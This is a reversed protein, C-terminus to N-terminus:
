VEGNLYMKRRSEPLHEIAYRLMTRPMTQYNNQLFDELINQSCRKGMERLMWGVAKHILDENDHLLIKAIKLTEASNKQYLYCFTSIISIRREWLSKSKALQSLIKKDKDELFKGVIHLATLDVLDWNNINKTNELYLNYIKRQLDKEKQFKKVLILLSCLREEHIPSHLLDTCNDLDAKQWYLSVIKRINPVTVGIFKDGEGYEGKKTKFFKQLIKAKQPNSFSKLAPKIKNIYKM